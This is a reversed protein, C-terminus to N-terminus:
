RLGVLSVAPVTYDAESGDNDFATLPIRTSSGGGAEDAYQVSLMADRFEHRVILGNGTEVFVPTSRGGRSARFTKLLADSLCLTPRAELANEDPNMHSLVFYAIAQPIGHGSCGSDNGALVLSSGAPKASPTGDLAALRAVFVVTLALAFAASLIRLGWRLGPVVLRRM